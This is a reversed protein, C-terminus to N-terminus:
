YQFNRQSLEAHTKPAGLYEVYYRGEKHNWESLRAKFEKLTKESVSIETLLHWGNNQNLFIPKPDNNAWLAETPQGREDVPYILYIGTSKNTLQQFYGKM